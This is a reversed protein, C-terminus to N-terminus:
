CVTNFDTEYYEIYKDRMYRLSSHVEEEDDDDQAFIFNGNAIFVFSLIFIFFPITKFKAVM